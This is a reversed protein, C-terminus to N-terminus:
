AMPGAGSVISRPNRDRTLGIYSGMIRPAVLLLAVSYGERTWSFAGPGKGDTGFHHIVTEQGSPEVKFVTGAGFTTGYLNGDADRVLNAVPYAGDSGGAFAHLVTEKGTAPMMFVVGKNASGGQSTTGYLNGAPDMVVGSYPAGGDNGGTFGYLVTENGSADLKYVVGAGSFGCGNGEGPGPGGCQTTGYLHGSDFLVGGTPVGGDEDYGFSHIVTEHGATDLKFVVGLYGPGGFSTTGYLNGASDRTLAANPSEGDPGSFSYLVTEHGASDIQFVVGCRDETDTCANGGAGTTGFLNGAKDIILSNPNGGDAGGTFTHLVMIHGSSDLKFVTGRDWAGGSYAVGYINGAQDRVVAEPSIGFPAVIDGFSHLTTENYAIQAASYAATLIIAVSLTCFRKPM